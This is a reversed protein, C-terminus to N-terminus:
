DSESEFPAIKLKGVVKSQCYDSCEDLFEEESKHQFTVILQLILALLLAVLTTEFATSLGGTVEKLSGRLQEPDSTNNLVAGFGGIAISLGMVTGVFGLVPIAWIFGRLLSFSTEMGSHDIDSQSRFIEDVDTVRGLNRLNSLAVQIRNTLVFNKPEDVIFYLQDLVRQVTATSLVFDAETPVIEMALVRRQFRVKRWKIFLMALSWAFLLTMLYPTFGRDTFMSRLDSPNFSVALLAYWGVTLAVGIILTLFGNVKTFRGGRFFLRQEIDSRYWSLGTDQGIHSHHKDQKSKSMM